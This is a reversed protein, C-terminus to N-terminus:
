MCPTFMPSWPAARSVVAARSDMQEAAGRRDGRAATRVQLGERLRRQGCRDVRQEFRDLLGM